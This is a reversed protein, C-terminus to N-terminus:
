KRALILPSDTEVNAKATLYTATFAEASMPRGFFFGQAEDCRARQLYALQDPHEVGEACVRMGLSHGLKVIADVIERPGRQDMSLFTRDIKLKDIAFRQMYSLNSYGTGFDDIVIQVGIDKLQTIFHKSMDTSKLLMGETIEMELRDPQLGTEDVARCIFDVIGKRRLLIPSVNIALQIPPWETAQRCAQWIVWESLSMISGTEEAIRIFSEPEILGREPHHWRILAEAGLLDNPMRTNVIPQFFLEFEDRECARFLDHEISQRQQRRRHMAGDYRRWTQKGERKAEYLAIDAQQLLELATPANEDISISAFGFSATTFIEQDDIRFPKSIERLLLTCLTEASEPQKRESQIIAFEDGSIRAIMDSKDAFRRLRRALERLLADGTAHGLTDNVDKFCDLDLCIVAISGTLASPKALDAALRTNLLDRNALGTLSDHTAAHEASEQAEVERTINTATGRYGLFRGQADHVPKGTLKLTQKTQSKGHHYSCLLNRFSTKDGTSRGFYDQNVDVPQFLESIPKGLCADDPRGAISSLDKSLYTLKSQQDTEWIWDSSTTAVDRFRIKDAEMRIATRRVYWLVLGAFFVVLSLLSLAWPWVSRIFASGPEASKWDLSALLDGNPDILPWHGDAGNPGVRLESIPLRAEFGVLVDKSLKKAIILVTSPKSPRASDDEPIIVSAGVLAIDPGVSLIGTAAKPAGTSPTDRANRILTNVGPSFIESINKHVRERDIQAYLTHDDADIVLSVDIAHLEYLYRSFNIQAWTEDFNVAINEYSDTWWSYDKVTSEIQQLERRTTDSVFAVSQQYAVENQNKISFSLSGV